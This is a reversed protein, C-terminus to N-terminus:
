RAAWWLRIEKFPVPQFAFPDCHAKMMKRAYLDTLTKMTRFYKHDIEAAKDSRALAERVVHKVRDSQPRIDGLSLDPLLVLNQSAHFPLARALGTLSYARAPPLINQHDLGLIKAKLECLVGHTNDIYTQVDDWETKERFDFEYERGRLIRDFSEFPLDHAHIVLSLNNLFPHPFKDVGQYIKEIEDRWWQLRILAMHPERVEDRISAIGANWLGLVQIASRMTEPAFLSLLARDPDVTKLENFLSPQNNQM